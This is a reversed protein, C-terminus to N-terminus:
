SKQVDRLFFQTMLKAHMENTKAILLCGSTGKDLRNVLGRSGDPNLGSLSLGDCQLLADVLSIAKPKSLHKLTDYFCVMGSPKSLVAFEEHDYLVKIDYNTEIQTAWSKSEDKASISLTPSSTIHGQFVTRQITPHLDVARRLVTKAVRPNEDVIASYALALTVLDPKLSISQVDHDEDDDLHKLLEVAMKSAASRDELKCCLGMLANLIGGAMSKNSGSAKLAGQVLHKPDRNAIDINAICWELVGTTGGRNYSDRFEFSIETADCNSAVHNGAPLFGPRRGLWRSPDFAAEIELALALVLFMLYAQWTIMKCCLTHHFLLVVLPITQHLKYSNM